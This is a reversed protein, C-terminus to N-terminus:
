TFYKANYRNGRWFTLVQRALLAETLPQNRIRIRRRQRDGNWVPSESLPLHLLEYVCSFMRKPRYWWRRRRYVRRRIWGAICRGFRRMDRKWIPAAPSSSGPWCLGCFRKLVMWADSIVRGTGFARVGAQLGAFAM